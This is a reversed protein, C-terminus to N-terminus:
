KPKLVIYPILMEEVSVGGHQFTDMYYNAFHNQNNPYVFFDNQRCFIYSSSVHIKPLFADMPKKIEFVDRKDYGLNRGIKYRLNTNTNREGVVKVTNNVRVSGHDTTIIVTAKKEALFEMVEFLPSNKFWSTTLSRYAKEDSALEKIMTMETRAHSLMDVFNYVLINLKNSLLNPLNEVYKRAQDLGIIKSYKIKIDRGLRKLQEKVLDEEHVNKLGEEDENLWLQPYKREIESPLLGAFFANRSYQTSTPLISCFIGDQDVRFLEDIIPEIAKWQDYRFNDIVILFVPGETALEPNVKEKFLTHSFIPKDSTAGKLWDIYKKEVYDAFVNNLEQKQMALVENMSSDGSKELELEWRIVKKYIDVFGNFDPNENIAMSIHRFEQQYDSIAKKSILEKNEFIKKLSLLIQHPNVPKILYDAISSGLAEEMTHEQENKTIMVVPLSPRLSKIASLTELGSLGPMNEDLFVVDFYEQKILNLAEDGSNTVIVDYSKEKLFIIHPKLLEMEDDAWLIKIASM